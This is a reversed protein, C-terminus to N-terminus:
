ALRQGMKVVGDLVLHEVLLIDFKLLSKLLPAAGGTLVVLASQHFAAQMRGVIESIGGVISLVVGSQMAQATSKGFPDINDPTTPIELRPLADTSQALQDLAGRLGVFISGGLFEGSGSVADVTIATGADVVICPKKGALAHGAVAACLRDMGVLQPAAVQIKLPVHTWDLQQIRDHVRHVKIWDTLQRDKPRNVSAILWALPEDTALQFEQPNGWRYVTTWAGPSNPVLGVKIFSNGVDVAIQKM